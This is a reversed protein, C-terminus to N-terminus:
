WNFRHWHKNKIPAARSVSQYWNPLIILTRVHIQNMGLLHM